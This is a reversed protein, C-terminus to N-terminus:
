PTQGGFNVKRLALLTGDTARLEVVIADRLATRPRRDCLVIWRDSDAAVHVADYGTVGRSKLISEAIAGADNSLIRGRRRSPDESGRLALFLIACLAIWALYIAAYRLRM